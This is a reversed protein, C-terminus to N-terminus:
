VALDSDDSLFLSRLFLPFLSPLSIGLHQKNKKM